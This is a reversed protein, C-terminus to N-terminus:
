DIYKIESNIKKNSESNAKERLLDAIISSNDKYELSEGCVPCDFNTASAKEFNYRHGNSKCVFFMNAEEYKIVKEIEETSRQIKENVIVSLKEQDFNWSYVFWQTEPDKSRKCSAVGADHLKYLIKRVTNLKIETEEAIEVDFTKGNLICEIISVCCKEDNTIDFLFEQVQPDRLM